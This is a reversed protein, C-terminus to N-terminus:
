VAIKEGALYDCMMAADSPRLFTLEIERILGSAYTQALVKLNDKDSIEKLPIHTGDKSVIEVDGSCNSLRNFFGITDSINYIKM